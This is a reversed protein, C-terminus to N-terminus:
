GHEAVIKRLVDLQQLDATKVGFFKAVAASTPPKEKAGPIQELALEYVQAKLNPVADMAQRAAAVAERGDASYLGLGFQDGLYRLCRKVADSVAEKSALEHGTIMSGGYEVSDGYGTDEYSAYTTEVGELSVAVTARYGVRRGTRDEKKFTEEGLLVIEKVKVSYGGIGFIINATRIADHSEIYSLTKGGGGQRQSVRDPDIPQALLALNPVTLSM